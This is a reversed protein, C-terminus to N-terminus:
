EDRLSDVPNARAARLTQYSITLVTIVLCVTMASFFMWWSLKIRFAFGTLWHNLLYASIPIAIVVAAAIWKFFDISLIRLIGMVSSGLIKRIGVEKTRKAIHMSMLGLLGLATVAIAILAAIWILKELLAEKQYLAAIQDDYFAFQFLESPYWVTWNKELDKLMASANHGSYKIALKKIRSEHVGIVTPSIPEYLANTNFDEVVGVIRGKGEDHLGGAYLSKGLAADPSPLGLNLAMQKNILFEAESANQRFNRGALLRIGFTHIYATDGIAYRAPWTEWSDRDDFQFTGGWAKENAPPNDCFTFSAIDSRSRLFTEIKSKQSLMDQKLPLTLIADRNFGLDTSKLHHVQAVIVITSVVLIFATMHQLLLLLKTGLGVNKKYQKPVTGNRLTSTLFFAPYLSTAVLIALWILLATTALHTVSINYIPDNQLLFQNSWTLFLYFLSIGLLLAFFSVMLSDLLYQLFLQWKTSGLVKRIGMETNRYIQQASVINCYNVVAMILIAGAAIGLLLLLSQQTGKGYDTDFHFDTIPLLKYSFYQLVDSHWHKAVLDHFGKEVAHQDGSTKLTLLINNTTQTYGWQNFFGDTKPINRIQSLASLAIYMESRFDSNKRSDDIVGVVTLDIEGEVTMTKGLADQDGFYKKALSRTLAVTNPKDLDEPNGIIWPFDLIKFYSSSAYAAMGDSKFRDNGIDITLDQKEIFIAAQEVQPLESKIAEFMALSGGKSFETKDLKLDQVLLFTRDVKSHFRDFSSQYTNFTYIFFFCALALGLSVMHLVTYFSYKLLQRWASKFFLKLM